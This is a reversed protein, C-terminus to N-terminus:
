IQQTRSDAGVLFSAVQGPGHRAFRRRCSDRGLKSSAELLSRSKWTRRCDKLALSASRTSAREATSHPCDLSKSRWTWAGSSSGRHGAGFTEVTVAMRALRALAQIDAAEAGITNVAVIADPKMTAWLAEWFDLSLFEPPATGRLFDIDVVLGALSKNLWPRKPGQM